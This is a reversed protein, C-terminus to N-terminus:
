IVITGDFWDAFLTDCQAVTPENGAGFIATLDLLMVDKLCINTWGTARKDKGPQMQGANGTVGSVGIFSLLQYEGLRSDSVYSTGIFSSGDYLEMCVSSSDAKVKARAYWKHGSVMSISQQTVRCYQGSALFTMTNNAVSITSSSDTTWGTTGNAFNGNQAINTVQRGNIAQVLGPKQPVISPPVICNVLPM